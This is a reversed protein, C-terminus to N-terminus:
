AQDRLLTKEYYQAVIAARVATKLSDVPEQPGGAGLGPVGVCVVDSGKPETTPKLASKYVGQCSGQSLSGFGTEPRWASWSVEIIRLGM